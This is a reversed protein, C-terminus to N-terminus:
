VDRYILSVSRSTNNSGAPVTQVLEAVLIASFLAGEVINREFELGDLELYSASAAPPTQGQSEVIATLTETTDSAGVQRDRFTTMAFFIMLVASLTVIKLNRNRMQRQVSLLFDM